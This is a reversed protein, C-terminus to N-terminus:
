RGGVFIIGHREGLINAPQLTIPAYGLVHFSALERGPPIPQANLYGQVEDTEPVECQQLLERPIAYLTGDDSRIVLADTTSHTM